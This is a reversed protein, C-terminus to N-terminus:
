RGLKVSRAIVVSQNDYFYLGTVVYNSQPQAPKEQISSAKGNAEFAMVGYREPDQVHYAFM